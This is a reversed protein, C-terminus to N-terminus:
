IEDEKSYFDIYKKKVNRPPKKAAIYNIFHLPVLKIGLRIFFAAFTGGRTKLDACSSVTIKEGINEIPCTRGLNVTVTKERGPLLDFWNDSFPADNINNILRM